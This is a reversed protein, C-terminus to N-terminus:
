PAPSQEDLWRGTQRQDIVRHYDRGWGYRAIRPHQYQQANVYYNLGVALVSRRRSVVGRHKGVPIRYWAM